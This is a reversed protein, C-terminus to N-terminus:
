NKRDLWEAVGGHRSCAGSHNAAHSYSGDKCKATAGKADANVGEKSSPAAAPRTMTAPAGAAPRASAEAATVPAAVTAAPAARTTTSPAMAAAPAMANPAAGKDQGGHGSCAGRGAKASTTGDKCRVAAATTAASTAGTAAAAPAASMTNTVAPRTTTAAAKAIGGHGSCAGSGGKPWPTGDKCTVPGSATATSAAFTNQNTALALLSAVVILTFCKM